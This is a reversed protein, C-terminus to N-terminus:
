YGEEEEEEEEMDMGAASSAKEMLDQVYEQAEGAPEYGQNDQGEPQAQVGEPM